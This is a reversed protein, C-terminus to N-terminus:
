APGTLRASRAVASPHGSPPEGGGQGVEVVRQGFPTDTDVDVDQVVVPRHVAGSGATAHEAGRLALRRVAAREGILGEGEVLHPREVGDGLGVAAAGLPVGDEARMDRDPELLESEDAAPVAGGGEFEGVVDAVGVARCAM